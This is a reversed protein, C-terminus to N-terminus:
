IKIKIVSLQKFIPNSNLIDIHREIQLTINTARFITIIDTIKSRYSDMIGADNLINRVILGNTIIYGIINYIKNTFLNDFVDFYKPIEKKILEINVDYTKMNSLHTHIHEKTNTNFPNLIYNKKTACYYYAVRELNNLQDNNNINDVFIIPLGDNVIDKTIINTSLPTGNPFLKNLYIYGEVCLLLKSFIKKLNNIGLTDVIVNFTNKQLSLMPYKRMYNFMNFYYSHFELIQSPTDKQLDMTEEVTLFNKGFSPDLKSGTDHVNLSKYGFNDVNNLFLLHEDFTELISAVTSGSNFSDVMNNLKKHTFVYDLLSRDYIKDITLTSNTSSLISFTVDGNYKYKVDYKIIGAPPTKNFEKLILVWARFMINTDIFNSLTFLQDKLTAGFINVDFLPLQTYEKLKNMLKIIKKLNFYISTYTEPLFYPSDPKNKKFDPHLIEDSRIAFVQKFLNASIKPGEIIVGNYKYTPGLKQEVNKRIETGSVITTIPFNLYIINNIENYTSITGNYPVSSNISGVTPNLDLLFGDFYNEPDPNNGRYIYMPNQFSLMEYLKNKIQYMINKLENIRSKVESTYQELNPFPLLETTTTDIKYYFKNFYSYERILVFNKPPVDTTSYCTKYQVFTDNFGRISVDMETGSSIKLRILRFSIINTKKNSIEIPINLYHLSGVSSSPHLYEPKITITRESEILYTNKTYDDYINKFSHERYVLKSVDKLEFESSIILHKLIFSNKKINM